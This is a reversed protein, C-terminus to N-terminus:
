LDGIMKNELEQMFQNKYLDFYYGKKALLELHTGMELIKGNRLVIIKDADVVTSLRHAVVLSTRNKLVTKMAELIYKENETDISSTAEDLIIIRPDGIIARAFSILQKEGLSLKNGGEGVLTDYGNELKSIFEHANALKSAAIVEEMTANLKGYMINEKITGSFLQPTQLVYGLNHHLWSLSREQYNVGDILITGETPEYFRSILNIITSKGSGTEGVLAIMEGAKIDLNFDELVNLNTNKYRFSVNKFEIKGEINEWNETKHNYLDGYKEIVEQSDEIDPKEEILQLVREASAQAQQLDSLVRAVMMVPDFFRIAYDVFLYLTSVKIAGAIVFDSGVGCVVAVGIYGIFLISPWYLSSFVSAGISRKRMDNIIKNFSENNDEELVLTKSTNAGLFSENYAATISSNIKRVSRYEKLIKKQCYISIIVFLPILSVLIIGLRWDIIFSIILIGVMLMFGWLLDIVSWSVINALKRADSTMRAMLWGSPTTDFYSFSLKQIKDFAQMRIEYTTEEEVKSAFFIFGWVTVGMVIVVAAYGLVVLAFTTSDNSPTGSFYTELVFTNLLPYCIDTLTTGIIFIIMAILSKKNKLIIKLIKTWTSFKFKEFTTEEYQEEM